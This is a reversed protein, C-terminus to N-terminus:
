STGRLMSLPDEVLEAAVTIRYVPGDPATPRGCRQPETLRLRILVENGEGGVREVKFWEADGAPLNPSYHRGELTMEPPSLWFSRRLFSVLMTEINHEEKLRLADEGATAVMEDEHSM